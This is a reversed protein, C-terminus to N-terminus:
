IDAQRARGPFVEQSPNRVNHFNQDGQKKAMHMMM